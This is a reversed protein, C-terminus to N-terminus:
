SSRPSTSTPRRNQGATCLRVVLHELVMRPSGISSKMRVDTDRLNRLFRALEAGRFGGLQKRYRDYLWARNGLAAQVRDRGASESELAQTALLARVHGALLALLGIPNEEVLLRDLVRLARASDRDGVADTLQFVTFEAARTAAARVDDERITDRTGVYSALKEIEGALSGLGPPALQVLARAADQSLRKGVEQAYRQSWSPLDEARPTACPHVQAIARVGKTFRRREDLQSAVLVLISPPPGQELYALLRDQADAKLREVRLVVVVRAAGFFPLTDARTLIEEATALDADLRDLNLDREAAPITQDLLARLTRDRLWDDEGLLLHVRRPGTSPGAARGAGSRVGRAAPRKRNDQADESM